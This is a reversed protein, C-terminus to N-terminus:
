KLHSDIMRSALDAASVSYTGNEVALRLAELRSEDAGRTAQAVSSLTTEDAAASSPQKKATNGAPATEPAVVPGLRNLDNIQM